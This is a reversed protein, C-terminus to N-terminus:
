QHRIGGFRPAAWSIAWPEATVPGSPVNGIAKAALGSRVTGSFSSGVKWKVTVASTVSM